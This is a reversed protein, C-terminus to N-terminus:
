PDGNVENRMTMHGRFTAENYKLETQWYYGGERLLCCKCSVM